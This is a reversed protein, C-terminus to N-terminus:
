PPCLMIFTSINIAGESGDLSAHLFSHHYLPIALSTNLRCHPGATQHFLPHCLTVTNAFLIFCRCCCQLDSHLLRPEANIGGWLVCVILMGFLSTWLLHNIKKSPFGLNSSCTKTPNRQSNNSSNKSSKDIKYIIHWLFHCKFQVSFDGCIESTSQTWHSVRTEQNTQDTKM